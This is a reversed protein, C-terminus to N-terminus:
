WRFIFTTHLESEGSHSWQTDASTRLGAPMIELTVAQNTTPAGPWRTQVELELTRGPSIVPLSLTGYWTGSRDPKLRLLEKGTRRICIEVPQDADRVLVPTPATIERPVDTPKQEAEPTPGKAFYILPAGAAMVGLLTYGIVAIPHNMTM